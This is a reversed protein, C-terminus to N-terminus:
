KRFQQYTICLLEGSVAADTLSSM